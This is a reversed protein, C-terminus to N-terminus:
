FRGVVTFLASLTVLSLLTSVGLMAIILKQSYGAAIGILGATIMSPMAAQVVSATVAPGSLLFFQTASYVLAPAVLLRLILGATLPTKLSSPIKFQLSFGISFAALPGMSAALLKLPSLSWGPLKDDSMLTAAIVLV